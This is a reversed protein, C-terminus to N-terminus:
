NRGFMEEELPMVKLILENKFQIQVPDEDLELSYLIKDEDKLILVKGDYGSRNLLWHKLYFGVGLGAYFIVIGGIVIVVTNM